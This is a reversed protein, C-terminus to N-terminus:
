TDPRNRGRHHLPSLRQIDAAICAPTGSDTWGEGVPGQEANEYGVGIFIKDPNGSFSQSYNSEWESRHILNNVNENEGAAYSPMAIIMSAVLCVAMITMLVRNTKM